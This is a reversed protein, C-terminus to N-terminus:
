QPKERSMLETMAAAPSKDHHLVAAVEKTIPMEIHCKEALQNVLLSSSVGEVVQDIKELSQAISLGQGLAIGFRHNRSQNETCTLILDGLGALGMITERQAGLKDTLRLIETLGRTILAARANAGLGLGEAIGTAIALINKVSGGIEVGLLDDTIYVRFKKSHFIDQFYKATEINSGAIIVATPLGQAVEKAFSPGSLAAFQADNDLIEYAVEHLFTGKKPDLGKTVWILQKDSTLYPKSKALVEAFAHSPVAILVIEAKELAARLSTTFQLEKPLPIGPLFHANVHQKALLEMLTQNRGWLTVDHENRILHIALATGWSGAGLIAVKKTMNM